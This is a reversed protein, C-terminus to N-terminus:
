DKKLWLRQLRQLTRGRVSPFPKEQQKNQRLNEEKDWQQLLGEMLASLFCTNPSIILYRLSQILMESSSPHLDMGEQSNEEAIM